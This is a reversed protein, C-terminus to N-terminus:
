IEGEQNNNLMGVEMARQRRIGLTDGGGSTPLLSRAADVLLM